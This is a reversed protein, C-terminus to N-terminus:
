KDWDCVLEATCTTNGRFDTTCRTVTRCAKPIEDMIEYSEENYAKTHAVLDQLTLVSGTGAISAFSLTLGVVMIIEKM